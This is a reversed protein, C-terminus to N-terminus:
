HVSAGEGNGKGSAPPPTQAEEWSLTEAPQEFKFGHKALLDRMEKVITEDYRKVTATGAKVRDTLNAVRNYFGELMELFDVPKSTRQVEMKYFYPLTAIASCTASQADGEFDKATFVQEGVRKRDDGEGEYTPVIVCNKAGKVKAFKGDEFRIMTFAEVFQVMANALNTSIDARITNRLAGLKTYDGHMAAHICVSLLLAHADRRLSGGRRGLSIIAKDISASSLIEVVPIPEPKTAATSAALNTKLAIAKRAM